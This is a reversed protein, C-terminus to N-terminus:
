RNPITAQWAPIIWIIFIMSVIVFFLFHLQNQLNKVEEQLNEIDSDKEEEEGEDRWFFVTCKKGNVELVMKLKEDKITRVIKQIEGNAFRYVTTWMTYTYLEEVFCDDKLKIPEGDDFSYKATGNAKTESALLERFLGRQKESFSKSEMEALSIPRWTGIIQVQIPDYNKQYDRKAKLKLKLMKVQAEQQKVQSSKTSAKQTATTTCM